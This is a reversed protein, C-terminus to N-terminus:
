KMSINSLYKELPPIKGGQLAKSFTNKLLHRRKHFRKMYCRNCMHSGDKYDYWHHHGTKDIQVNKSGCLLCFWDSKDKYNHIIPHTSRFLAELNDKDNNCKNEDKHHVDTWKLLCVNHYQEYLYRHELVRVGNVSIRRYGDPNIGGKTTYIRLM